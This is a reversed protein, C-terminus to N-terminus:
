WSACWVVPKNHESLIASEKTIRKSLFFRYISLTNFFQTIINHTRVVVRTKGWPNNVDNRQIIIGLSKEYRKKDNLKENGKVRVGTLITKKIKEYTVVRKFRVAESGARLATVVVVRKKVMARGQKKRISVFIRRDHRERDTERFDCLICARFTTTKAASTRQTRLSSRLSTAYIKKFEGGVTQGPLHRYISLPSSFVSSSFSALGVRAFFFVGFSVTKKKYM